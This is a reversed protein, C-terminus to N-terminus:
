PATRVFVKTTQALQLLFKQALTLTDLKDPSLGSFAMAPRRQLFIQTGQSTELGPLSAEWALLPVLGGAPLHVKASFDVKETSGPKRYWGQLHVSSGELVFGDDPEPAKSLPVYLAHLKCYRRGSAESEGFSQAKATRMSEVLTRGKRSSDDEFSHDARAVPLGWRLSWPFGRFGMTPVAEESACAVLQMAALGVYGAKLGFQVGLDNEFIYAKQADDWRAGEWSWGLWYSLKSGAPLSLSFSSSSSTELREEPTQGAGSDSVSSESPLTSSPVTCDLFVVLCVVGVCM